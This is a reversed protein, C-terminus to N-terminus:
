NEQALPDEPYKQKLLKRLADSKAPDSKALTKSAFDLLQPAYPSTPLALAFAEAVKAAQQPFRRQLMRAKLMAAYGDFLTSPFRRQWEDWKEDATELDNQEIFFEISRAMAGSLAVRKAGDDDDKLQDLLKRAEDLHQDLLLATMRLRKLNASDRAMFPELMAAAQKFDTTRWLLVNAYLTAAKPHLNSQPPLASLAAALEANLNKEDATTIADNIADTAWQQDPHKTVACLASLMKFMADPQRARACIRTAQALQAPSLKSPDYTAIIPAQVISEDVQPQTMRLPDRGVVLRLTRKDDAQMSKLSVTVPYVGPTLFVHEAHDGSATQGDGFDWTVRPNRANGTPTEFKIRYSSRDDLITEGAHAYQVDAVIQKKHEELSGVKTRVLRGFADASVPEVRPSDPRKWGVSIRWDGGGNVTYVEIPHAGRPLTVTKNFRIDEPFGPVVLFDKGDLRIAGRDDISAAIQYEGDDPSYLTGTIRSISPADYYSPNYGLFLRDIVATGIVDGSHEWVQAMQRPGGVDINALAKTEVILGANIVAAKPASLKDSKNGWYAYHRLEGAKPNFVVRVRDGPGFQLLRMPVPTGDDAAIRIDGADPRAVGPAYFEAVATDDADVKKADTVLDLPRRLPFAADYWNGSAPAPLLFVLAPLLCRAARLFSLVVADLDGTTRRKGNAARTKM